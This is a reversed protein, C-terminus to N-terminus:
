GPTKRIEASSIIHKYILWLYMYTNALKSGLRESYPILNNLPIANLNPIFLM